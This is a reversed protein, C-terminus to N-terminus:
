EIRVCVSEVPRGQRQCHHAVNRVGLGDELVDEDDDLEEDGDQDEGGDDAVDAVDDRAHVGLPGLELFLHIADLSVHNVDVVM